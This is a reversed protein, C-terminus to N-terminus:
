KYQKGLGFMEAKTSVVVFFMIGNKSLQNYSASLFQFRENKNFLHLLSYCYIGEYKTTEYPMDLVSGQFIPFKFGIERAVKIASKAIEIGTVEIGKELFPKVNRGYGIGPILIKKIGHELFYNAALIASDAPEFKWIAGNEFKTEWYNM